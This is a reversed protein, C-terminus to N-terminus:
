ATLAFTAANAIFDVTDPKDPNFVHLTNLTSILLMPAIIAVLKSSGEETLYFTMKFKPCYNKKTDQFYEIKPFPTMLDYCESKDM